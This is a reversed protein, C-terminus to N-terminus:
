KLLDQRSSTWGRSRPLLNPAIWHWMPCKFPGPWRSHIFYRPRHRSWYLAQSRSVPILHNLRTSTNRKLAGKERRLVSFICPIVWVIVFLFRWRLRFRLSILLADLSSIRRRRLSWSRCFSVGRPKIDWCCNHCCSRIIGFLRHDWIQKYISAELWVLRVPSVISDCAKWIWKSLFLCLLM